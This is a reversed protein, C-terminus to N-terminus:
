VKLGHDMKILDAAREAVAYVSTQCNGRQILPMISADVVRLNKTGYVLLRESVFGGKDRPLMACTGSYHYGTVSTARAYEKADELDKLFATPHNRKGNPKLYSALPETKALTQLFLIHRAYVEIDLPHSFYNNEIRPPQLIDKSTIHVSGRSMPHTQIVGLTTFNELQAPNDHWNAQALIM